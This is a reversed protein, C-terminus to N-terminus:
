EGELVIDLAKLYSVLDRVAQDLYTKNTGEPFALSHNSVVEDSLRRLNYIIVSDKTM